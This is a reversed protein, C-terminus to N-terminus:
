NCVTLTVTELESCSQFASPGIVTVSSPIEISKLKECKWFARTNILKLFSSLTVKELLFGYSFVYGDIV